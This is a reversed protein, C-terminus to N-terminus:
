SFDEQRTGIAAVTKESLSEEDAAIGGRVAALNATAFVNRALFRPLMRVRASDKEIRDVRSLEIMFRTPYERPVPVRVAM